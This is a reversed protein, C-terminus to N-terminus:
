RERGGDSSGRECEWGFKLTITRQTAFEGRQTALPAHQRQGTILARLLRALEVGDVLCQSGQLACVQVHEDVTALLKLLMEGHGPLIPRMDDTM